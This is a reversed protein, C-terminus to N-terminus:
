VLIEGKVIKENSAFDYDLLSIAGNQTKIIIDNETALVVGNPDTDNYGFDSYQIKHIIVKKNKYYTFAGPYPKAQARVWNHIREKQWDWNIQGDDPTRKGYLTAKTEDQPIFNITKNEIRNILEQIIIIYRENYIALLEAGTIDGNIAIKEQYVIDGEDCGETLKHATIGTEKENNIIAWVHPTRGRYKPLCSGHLNIAYKNAHSIVDNEVIFLYNLSLIVDTDFNSLFDSSKNNRPNGIFLPMNNDNCFSIIEESKKDTFVFNIKQILHLYKLCQLGLKGSSLIGYSTKM